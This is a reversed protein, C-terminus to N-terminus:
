QVEPSSTSECITVIPSTGVRRLVRVLGAAELKQLGLYGPKRKVAFRELTRRTLRVTRRKQCGRLFWLALGVALAKGPLEAAKNIWALPVPGCLFKERRPRNPRAPKGNRANKMWEDVTAPDIRQKDRSFDSESM